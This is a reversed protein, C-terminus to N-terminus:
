KEWGLTLPKNNALAVAVTSAMTGKRLEKPSANPESVLSKNLRRKMLFNGVAMNGHKWINQMTRQM